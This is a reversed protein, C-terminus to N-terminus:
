LYVHQHRILACAYEFHILLFLMIIMAISQSIIFNQMYIAVILGDEMCKMELYEPQIISSSNIVADTRIFTSIDYLQDFRNKISESDEVFIAGGRKNALNNSFSFSALVRFKDNGIFSGKYSSMAGGDSGENNEFKAHFNGPGDIHLASNIMVFIGGAPVSNKVFLMSTNTFAVVSKFFLLM